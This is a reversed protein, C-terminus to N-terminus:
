ETVIVTIAAKKKNYTTVTIKTKGKKLATVVGGGDVSAVAAKSSKWALSTQATAPNLGVSLQLAEGVKMTVAKGQNIGIGLPKNPDVVKVTITAKKKNHTQVTIKTTGEGVPVVVGNGDVTAVGPKSSKWALTAQATAPALAANLQLSQGMTITITKGQAISVGDPKNPDVVKVTITAKKKNHTNVTIKTTGEAVPSVLGGGDVTAVGPKSSKWTLTAQATAPELAATLQLPQGLAITATKGQAISVGSPKYLDVVNITITAKVKKNNTTVTIKAKGEATATVLGKGDVSAVGTKGSKFGTVAAGAATAFDPLLVAQEGVAM